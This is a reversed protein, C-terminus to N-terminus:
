NEEKALLYCGNYDKLIYDDSSSLVIGEIISLLSITNIAYIIGDLSIKVKDSGLYLAM